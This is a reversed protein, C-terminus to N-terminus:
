VDTEIKSEEFISEVTRKIPKLFSGGVDEDIHGADTYHAFAACLPDVGAFHFVSTEFEGDTVTAAFLFEGVVDVGIDASILVFDGFEGFSDGCFACEAAVANFANNSMRHARLHAINVVANEAILVFDVAM